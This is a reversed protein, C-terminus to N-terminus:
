YLLLDAMNSKFYDKDELCCKAIFIHHPLLGEFLNVRIRKLSSIYKAWNKKRRGGQYKTNEIHRVPFVPHMMFRARRAGGNLASAHNPRISFISCLHLIMCLCAGTWYEWGIKTPYWCVCYNYWACKRFSEKWDSCRWHTLWESLNLILKM